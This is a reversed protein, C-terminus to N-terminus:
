VEQQFVVLIQMLEVLILVIIAIFQLLKLNSPVKALTMPLIIAGVGITLVINIILYRFFYLSKKVRKRGSAQNKKKKYRLYLYQPYSQQVQEEQDKVHKHM